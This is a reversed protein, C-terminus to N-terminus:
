MVKIKKPKEQPKLVFKLVLKGDSYTVSPEDDYKDDVIIITAIKGNLNPIERHRFEIEEKEDNKIFITIENNKKTIDIKDKSVGCLDFAYYYNGDKDPYEDYNVNCKMENDKVDKNNYFYTYHFPYDSKISNLLYDYYM